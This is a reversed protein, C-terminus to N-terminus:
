FAWILFVACLLLYITHNFNSIFPNLSSFVKSRFCLVVRKLRLFLLSILLSSNWPSNTQKITKRKKFTPFIWSQTLEVICCSSMKKWFIQLSLDTASVMKLLLIFVLYSSRLCGPQTFCSFSIYTEGPFYNVSLNM